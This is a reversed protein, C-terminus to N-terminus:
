VDYDQYPVFESQVKVRQYAGQWDMEELQKDAAQWELIEQQTFEGTRPSNIQQNYFALDQAMEPAYTINVEGFTHDFYKQTINHVFDLKFDKM